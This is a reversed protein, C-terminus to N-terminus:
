GTLKSMGNRNDSVVAITDHKLCKLVGVRDFCLLTWRIKNYVCLLVSLMCHEEELVDSLTKALVVVRPAM